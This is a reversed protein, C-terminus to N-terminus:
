DYNFSSEMSCPAIIKSCTASLSKLGNPESLHVICAQAILASASLFHRSNEGTKITLFTNSLFSVCTYVFLLTKEQAFLKVFFLSSTAGRKQVRKIRASTLSCAKFHFFLLLLLLLKLRNRFVLTGASSKTRGKCNIKTM